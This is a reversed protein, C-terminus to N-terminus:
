VIIRQGTIGGEVSKAFAKAVLAVPVPVHGPFYTGFRDASEVFLGPSVVNIRQRRPMEISASLVFGGLAANVTASNSLGRVPERDTVGSTLTFSGDESIRDFGQLVLDIQGMLKSRVGILFDQYTTKILPGFHADGVASVLADITGVRQYMAAISAGDTIDVRVDGRTLGASVLDHRSGFEQRLASGLTGFAGVILIRM